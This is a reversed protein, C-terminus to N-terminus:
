NDKDEGLLAKAKEVAEEESQAEGDFYLQTALTRVEQSLKAEENEKGADDEPHERSQDKDTTKDESLDVSPAAEMLREVIESATLSKEKGDESLHLAVAGKDALLMKEAAIIMAPTKKEDEWDKVKGKITSIRTEEELESGRKLREKVEDASLGFEQAIIEEASLEVKTDEKESM